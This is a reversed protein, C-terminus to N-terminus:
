DVLRFLNSEFSPFIQRRGLGQTGIKVKKGAPLPFHGLDRGLHHDAVPAGIRGASWVDFPPASRVPCARVPPSPPLLLGRRREPAFQEVLPWIGRADRSPYCGVFSKSDQDRSLRAQGM